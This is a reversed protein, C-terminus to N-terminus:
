HFNYLSLTCLTFEGIDSQYIYYSMLPYLMYCNCFYWLCVFCKGCYTCHWYWIDPFYFTFKSRADLSLSRHTSIRASCHSTLGFLHRIYNHNIPIIDAKWPLSLQMHHRIKINLIQHFTFIFFIRFERTVLRWQM